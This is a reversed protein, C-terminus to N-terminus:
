CISCCSFCSYWKAQSAAKNNAKPSQPPVPTQPESAKPTEPQLSQQKKGKISTCNEVDGTLIPFAFSKTSADHKLSRPDTKPLSSKLKENSHDVANERIVERMTEAAAAETAGLGQNLNGSRMHPEPSKHPTPTPTPPQMSPLDILPGSFQSDGALGLEGSKGMWTVQDRTFSMNGMHISFLSENSAVSWEVPANAKNGAFVHPPIRGPDGSDNDDDDGTRAMVQTQPSETASENNLGDNPQELRSQSSIAFDEENIDSALRTGNAGTKSKNNLDKGSSSLSSSTGKPSTVTQNVKLESSTGGEHGSEM